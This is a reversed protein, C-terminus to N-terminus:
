MNHARLPAAEIDEKIPDMGSSYPDAELEDWAKLVQTKRGDGNTDRLIAKTEPHIQWM